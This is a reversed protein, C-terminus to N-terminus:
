PRRPSSLSFGESFHRSRDEKLYKCRRVSAFVFLLKITVCNKGYKPTYNRSASIVESNFITATNTFELIYFSTQLQITPVLICTHDVEIGSKV